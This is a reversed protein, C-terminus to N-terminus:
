AGGVSSPFGSPGKQLSRGADTVALAHAPKAACDDAAAELPFHAGEQSPEVVHLRFASAAAPRMTNGGCAGVLSGAEEGGGSPPSSEPFPFLLALDVSYPYASM